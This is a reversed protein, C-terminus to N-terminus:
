PDLTEVDLYQSIYHASLEHEHAGALVRKLYEKTPRLGQDIKKANAIYIFAEIMQQNDFTITKIERLYHHPVGEYKDLKEIQSQTLEFVVGEVNSKKNPHINGKGSKDIVSLKSYSFSYGKLTAKGLSKVLSVREELRAKLMNSGFAFYFVKEEKALKKQVSTPGFDSLIAM